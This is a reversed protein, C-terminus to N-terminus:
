INRFKILYNINKYYINYFIFLICQIYLIYIYPSYRINIIVDLFQYLYGKEKKVNRLVCELYSITCKRYNFIWKFMIFFILGIYLDPLIIDFFILYYGFIIYIILFIYIINKLM